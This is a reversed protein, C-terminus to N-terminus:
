HGAAPPNYTLNSGRGRLASTDHASRGKLAVTRSGLERAGIECTQIRVTRGHIQLSSVKRRTNRWVTHLAAAAKSGSTTTSCHPASASTPSGSPSNLRVCRPRARNSLGHRHQTEAKSSRTPRRLSYRSLSRPIDRAFEAHEAPFAEGGARLRRSCELCHPM